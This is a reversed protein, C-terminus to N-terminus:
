FGSSSTQIISAARSIVIIETERNTKKDNQRDIQRLSDTRRDMIHCLAQVGSCALRATRAKAKSPTNSTREMESGLKRWEM